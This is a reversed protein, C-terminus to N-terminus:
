NVSDVSELSDGSKRSQIYLELEKGYKSSKIKSDLSNYVTDLYKVNVYPAESLMLYPAIELNKNNIAFNVTTYYQNALLRQQRNENLAILSDSKLKLREEILDLNKEIFRQKLKNYDRLISDNSSGTIRAQSGFKDLVTNITMTGPEAFFRVRDDKLSADKPKVWLYFVEPEEITQHFVFDSNGDIVVSDVSILVTDEFKQLYLTGKKLGKVTGSLTLNGTNSSCGVFFLAISFISILFRM